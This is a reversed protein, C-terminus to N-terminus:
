ERRPADAAGITDRDPTGHRGLAQEWEWLAARARTRYPDGAPSFHLFTRMAGLGSELDGRGEEAMALGYYANAQTPRLELASRFFDRAVGYRQLGLLAFGMNVHAEPMRPALQLVRHLATAAHEYQKAHLMAVAQQFRASTEAARKERVHAAPNARPDAAGTVIEWAGSPILPMLGVAALVLLAVVAIRWQPLPRLTM